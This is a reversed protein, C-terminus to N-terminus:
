VCGGDFIREAWIICVDFVKVEFGSFGPRPDNLFVPKNVSDM